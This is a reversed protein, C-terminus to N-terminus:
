LDESVDPNYDDDNNNDNDDDDGDNQSNHKKSAKGVLKTTEIEGVM